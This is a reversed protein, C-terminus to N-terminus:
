QWTEFLPGFRADEELLGITLFLSLAFDDLGAAERVAQLPLHTSATKEWEQLADGCGSEDLGRERAEDLYRDLFPFQQLTEEQSGFTQSVRDIVQMVVAHLRLEFHNACTVAVNTFLNKNM